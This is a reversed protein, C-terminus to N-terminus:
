GNLKEQIMNNLDEKFEGRLFKNTDRQNRYEKNYQYIYSEVMHDVVEEPTIDGNKQITRNVRNVVQNEYPIQYVELGFAQDFSFMEDFGTSERRTVISIVRDALGEIDIDSEGYNGHFNHYKEKLGNTNVTESNLYIPYDDLGTDTYSAGGGSGNKSAM